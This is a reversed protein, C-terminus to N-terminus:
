KRNFYLEKQEKMYKKYSNQKHENSMQFYNYKGNQGKKDALWVYWFHLYVDNKTIKMADIYSFGIRVLENYCNRQKTTLGKSEDETSIDNENKSDFKEINTTNTKEKKNNEKLATTNELTPNDLTPFDSKPQNDINEVMTPFDLKPYDMGNEIKFRTIKEKDSSYHYTVSRLIGKNDKVRIRVIYGANILENIYKGCTDKGINAVKRLNELNIPWDDANSLLIAMLGRAQLSLDQNRIFSNDIITFCNDNLNNFTVKPM